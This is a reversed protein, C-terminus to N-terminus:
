GGTIDPYDEIARINAAFTSWNSAAKYSDVLAAPVYIYGTGDEIPTFFFANKNVLTVVKSYRLILTRLQSCYSFLNSPISQLKPFSVKRLSTCSNFTSGSFTTLNPMNLNALASCGAFADVGVTVVNPLDVTALNRCSHFVNGGITTVRSNSIETLTRTLLGDEISTNGDGGGTVAAVKIDGTVYTGASVATQVSSSPTITTAGKTTLQKTATKTGGEVYGATQTATATIKGSSSVSIVPTAQAVTEPMESPVNVSAKAYATVDYEGNATIQKTGSPTIGGGPSAKGELTASIQAILDTQTGVETNTAELEYPNAGEVIEGDAGHAMHGVVLSDATVNDGTLDVLVRDGDETAMTIKSVGAM